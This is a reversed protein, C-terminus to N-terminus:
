KLWSYKWPKSGTTAGSAVWQLSLILQLFNDIAAKREGLPCRTRYLVLTQEQLQTSSGLFGVPSPRVHFGMLALVQVYLKNM